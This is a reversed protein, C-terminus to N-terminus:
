CQVREAYDPVSLPLEVCKNEDRIVRSRIRADLAGLADLGMNSTFLTAKGVRFSAMKWILEGAFGTPDRDAGLEDVFLCYPEALADLAASTDYERARCKELFRGFSISRFSLTRPLQDRRWRERCEVEATRYVRNALYTKGTGSPGLLSLWRKCNGGTVERWFQRAEHLM